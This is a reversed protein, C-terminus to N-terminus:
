AEACRTNQITSFPELWAPWREISRRGTQNTAVRDRRLHWELHYALMCLFVHARVRDELRHHIPRLELPGKFSRFAREVEKLKRSFGFSTDTIELEFHKKVRYRNWVAGAALGIEAEGRLTAQEVRRAIGGLERETAEPLAERKRAREEAVLPNRCVM